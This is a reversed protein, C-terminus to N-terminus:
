CATVFTSFIGYIRGAVHGFNQLAQEKSKEKRERGAWRGANEQRSDSFLFLEETSCRGDIWRMITMTAYFYMSCTHVHQVFRRRRLKQFMLRAGLWMCYITSRHKQRMRVGSALQVKLIVM